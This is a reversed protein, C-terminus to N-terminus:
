RWMERLLDHVGRFHANVEIRLELDNATVPQINRLLASRQNIKQAAVEMFRHVLEKHEVDEMLRECHKCM